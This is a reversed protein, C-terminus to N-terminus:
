RTSSNRADHGEPDPRRRASGVLRVLLAGAYVSVCVHGGGFFIRASHSDGPVNYCSSDTIRHSRTARRRRTPPRRGREDRSISLASRAGSGLVRAGGATFSVQDGRIAGTELPAARADGFDDPVGAHADPRGRPRGPAQSRRRSRFLAPRHVLELLRRHHRRDRRRDLRRHRVHQCRDAHGPKLTPSSRDPAELLNDPLLFLALVTAQPSIRRTCTARRSADRKSAACRGQGRKAELARGHRPQIRHRPARAGRKAAAIVNRGDGSGLDVVFDQPTVQAVDLMREVTSEPSPVWVVDKGAQGIKPEYVRRRPHTQGAAPPPRRPRKRARFRPCCWTFAVSALMVVRSLRM